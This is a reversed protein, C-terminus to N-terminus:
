RHNGTNIEIISYEVGVKRLGAKKFFYKLKKQLSSKNVDFFSGKM